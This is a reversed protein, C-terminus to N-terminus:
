GIEKGLLQHYLFLLANLAQNQTSGSVRAETALNSFFWALPLKRGVGREKALDYIM